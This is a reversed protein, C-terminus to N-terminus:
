GPEADGFNKQDMPRTFLLEHLEREGLVKGVEKFAFYPVLALSTIVEAALLGQPTGGAISPVSARLTDGRLLGGLTEEAAYFLIFVIAYVVAKYVIPYIAPRSEFGRVLNFDEMVLMVKALVLATVLAFGYRTFAIDYRALVVSEHLLFLGLMVYLYIFLGVFQRLARSIRHKWVSGRGLDRQHSGPDNTTTSSM